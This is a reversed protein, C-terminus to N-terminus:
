EYYIIIINILDIRMDPNCHKLEDVFHQFVSNNFGEKPSKTQFIFDTKWTLKNQNLKGTKVLKMTSFLRQICSLSTSM